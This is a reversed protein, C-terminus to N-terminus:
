LITAVVEGTKRVTLKGTSSEFKVTRSQNGGVDAGAIFIDHSVLENVVSDVNRMGVGLNGVVSAGGALKARLKKLSSGQRRFRNMLEELAEQVSYWGSSDPGKENGPLLIHAGGTLGLAPDHIFLGICSGLGVCTYQANGRHSVVDGINLTFAKM